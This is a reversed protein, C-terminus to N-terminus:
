GCRVDGCIKCTAITSGYVPEGSVEWVHKCNDRVDKIMLIYDEKKKNESAIIEDCCKIRNTIEKILEKTEIKM